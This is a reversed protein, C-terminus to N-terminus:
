AQQAELAAAEELCKRKYDDFEDIVKQRDLIIKARDVIPKDIMAGDLAIAGDKKEIAEDFVAIIRRAQAVDEANQGFMENLIAVQSPHIGWAGKLGVKISEQVVTKFYELDRFNGFAAVLGMPILGYAKAYIVMHANEYSLANPYDVKVGIDTAFDFTGVNISLGRRTNACIKEMNVFGKATEFLMNTRIHGPEIGRELELKEICEEIEHMREVTEIKPITIGDLGPYISAELDKRFMDDENNIRVYIDAGGRRGIDIAQRINQRAAEKEGPLVSDELDFTIIDAGCLYSKQIFRQKHAPVVLGSRYPNTPKM